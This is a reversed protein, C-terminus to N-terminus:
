ARHGWTSSAGDFCSEVSQLSSVRSPTVPPARAEELAPAAVVGNSGRTSPADEQDQPDKFDNQPPPAPGGRGRRVASSVTRLFSRHLGTQPALGGGGGGRREAGHKGLKRRLVGSAVAETMRMLDSGNNFPHDIAAVGYRERLRELYIGHSAVAKGRLDDV